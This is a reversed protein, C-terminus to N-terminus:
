PNAQAIPVLNETMGYKDFIKKMTGNNILEMTALSLMRQLEYKRGPVGTSLPFEGLPPQPVRRLPNNNKANFDNVVTIEGVVIDAKNTLLMQFLEDFSSLEPLAIKQAKPFWLDIMKNQAYGDVVAFRVQADNMGDYNQDFRTDDQRVFAYIPLRGIPHVFDIERARAATPWLAACFADFKGSNLDKVMEGLGAEQVWEIKLSLKEGLAETYDYAIGSLQGTNPDKQLFPYRLAYGCRLTGSQMVRDYVSERATEHQPANNSLSFWLAVAALLLSLFPIIKM